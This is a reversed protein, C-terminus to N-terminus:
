DRSEIVLLIGTDFSIEAQEELMENSVGRSSLLELDLKETEYKMGKITLGTVTEGVALFSLYKRYVMTDKKVSFSKDQLYMCNHDDVIKMVVKEKLAYLLCGINALTHDMRSGIGGLLVIEGLGADSNPAKKKSEGEEKILRVALEVAAQTDTLDKEPQYKITNVKPNESFTKLIEPEITDFDGVIYDPLIGNEFCFKLGGDVGIVIEFTNKTLFALASEKELRGGSIIVIRFM